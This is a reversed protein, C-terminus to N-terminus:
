VDYLSETPSRLTDREINELDAENGLRILGRTRLWNLAASVTDALDDHKGKPVQMVETMVMEAWETEPVYVIKDAFLPVTSHLRSTKDGAPNDLYVMCEGPRLNRILERNLDTARTKNEILIADAKRRRATDLVRETLGWKKRAESLPTNPEPKEGLLPGRWRWAEMMVVRPREYRDFWVGWVTCANFSNIEKNGYATDVSVLVYSVPPYHLVNNQMVVGAANAADEDYVQWWERPIIGGEAPSPAQNLRGSAMYPGLNRKIIALRKPDWREPWMLEGDETRPDEWIVPLDQEDYGLITRCHRAPDYEMPVCYHVWDAADESDLIHGSIDEQHLRQQVVVIAGNKPDNLRTGSFEKFGRIASQREPDSEVRETNNGDDLVNITGGLGILVGSISTSQRRGGHQNAYDAKSNQDSKLRIVGPWHKQFWPSEILQRQENASTLALPYGYSATLFQVGPGSTASKEQQIWTWVPWCTLILKTKGCRPPFNVLLRKISGYTVAELHDCLGELAWNDQWPAPDISPWAQQVFEILSDECRRKTFRRDREALLQLKEIKQARTLTKTNPLSVNSNTTM